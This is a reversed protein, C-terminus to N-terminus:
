WPCGRCRRVAEIGPQWEIRVALRPDFKNLGDEISGLLSEYRRLEGVFRRQDHSATREVHDELVTSM